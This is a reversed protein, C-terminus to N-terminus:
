STKISNIEQLFGQISGNEKMRFFCFFLAVLVVRKFHPITPLQLLFKCVKAHRLSSSVAVMPENLDTLEKLSHVKVDTENVNYSNNAIMERLNQICM